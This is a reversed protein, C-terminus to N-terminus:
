QPLLTNHKSRNEKRAIVQLNWPVHLGRVTKGRLPVIHDVEFVIGTRKTLEVAEDYFRRMLEHQEATLWSPAANIKDCRRRASIVRRISSHQLPHLQEWRRAAEGYKTPNAAYKGRKRANLAAGHKSRRRQAKAALKGLNQANWAADYGAKCALCTM